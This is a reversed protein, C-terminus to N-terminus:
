GVRENPFVALRAAQRRRTAQGAIIAGAATIAAILLMSTSTAGAVEASGTGTNPLKGVAQTTRAAPAKPFTGLPAQGSVPKPQTAPGSPKKSITRM